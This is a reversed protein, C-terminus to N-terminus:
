VSVEGLPVILNVHTGKGPTSEIALSAHAIDAREKMNLLGLSGRAAYDAEICAVDFGCGDDRVCIALAGNKQGIKIWVNQAQAHKRVNGVAEQVISFIAAEAKSELRLESLDSELHVALDKSERQRNVYERLAPFLGQTELLVPRLDFLMNRVQHLAQTSIKEISDLEEVAREPKRALVERLFRLNMIVASLLQSPGDHLDRALERRVQEEIVLMRDRESVVQQYLRANEIAVASQAAFAVLLEQDDDNFREGSKRNLVEIVGIANGKYILPVAMLSHVSFEDGNGIGLFRNDMKVDHVIAPLQTTFVSGAIGRDSPFRQHVLSPGGGGEVIQFVLERTAPDFLLLSGASARMVAVASEVVQALLRDLNLEFTLSRAVEQLAELAAVKQKLRVTEARWENAAPDFDTKRRRPITTM